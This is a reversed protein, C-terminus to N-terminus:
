PHERGECGYGSREYKGVGSRGAEELRKMHSNRNEELQVIQDETNGRQLTAVVRRMFEPSAAVIEEPLVRIWEQPNGPASHAHIELLGDETVRFGCLHRARDEGSRYDQSTDKLIISFGGGAGDLGVLQRSQRARELRAGKLEEIRSSRDM